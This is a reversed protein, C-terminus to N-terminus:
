LAKKAAGVTEKQLLSWPQELLWHSAHHHLFSITPFVTGLFSLRPPDEVHAFTRDTPIAEYTM